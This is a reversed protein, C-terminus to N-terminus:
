NQQTGINRREIKYIQTLVSSRKIRREDASKRYTTDDIPLLYGEKVLKELVDKGRLGDKVFDACRAIWTASKQNASLTARHSRAESALPPATKIVLNLAQQAAIAGAQQAALEIRKRIEDDGSGSNPRTGLHPEAALVYSLSEIFQAAVKAHLASM